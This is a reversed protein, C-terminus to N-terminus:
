AASRFGPASASLWLRLHRRAVRRLRLTAIGRAGTRARRGDVSVVAGGVPAAYSGLVARVLVRVLVRRGRAVARRSLVRVRLAAECSGSSGGRVLPGVAVTMARAGPCAALVLAGAGPSSVIAEGSARASYGHPYVLAPTAVVSVAGEGFAGGGAARLVSFALTFTQTARDYGWSSPTGAILQPYPEVLAELTTAVLNSGTPPLATNKVIAQTDGPGQTTPDNCGCYAWELWPVMNQDARTVMDDLYATSLTAGFETMMLADHTQAVHAVADSFVLGDTTECASSNPDGLDEPETLCYDHFAFGAHPDGLPGLTTNAGDNFIVNPEYWVLTRPDVQRIAADVQKYFALLKADFVPCGAPQACQEWATGPFPENMIEYGLVSPDGRFWTAVDAWAKAYYTQLGVGDPGPADNFFQDLAHELAPNALYNNSFGLKPNPLGGDQIAWDPFGEGQFEENLMDQHFDLLSVIGYRALMSVTLAIHELYTQDFVGPKPELAKWIVGVRVANFGISRLFAADRPGFPAASPYYPAVKYVMNIGHTIWVRGSADTIWRGAHALPLVPAAAVGAAAGASSPLSGASVALTAAVVALATVLKRNLARAYRRPPPAM